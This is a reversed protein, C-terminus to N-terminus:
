VKYRSQERKHMGHVTFAAAHRRATWVTPQASSQQDCELRIQWPVKM